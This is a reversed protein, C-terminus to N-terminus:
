DDMGWEDIIERLDREPAAKRVQRADVALIGM